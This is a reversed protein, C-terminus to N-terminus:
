PSALLSFLCMCTHTLFSALTRSSTLPFRSPLIFVHKHTLFSALTRSSTLPFRSPLIFVYMHTDSIIGTNQQLNPPLSFLCMCTHTLFSALTRSSTLPFRSPLVFVYMHTLFSALTRSSTLPFRSPLIFVYMHTDSIIGTNQQLNHSALLSFLCMCTHTLFSTLTRSEIDSQSVSPWAFLNSFSFFLSRHLLIKFSGFISIPLVHLDLLCLICSIPLISSHCGRCPLLPLPHCFFSITPSKTWVFPIVHDLSICPTYFHLAVDQLPHAFGPMSIERLQQDQYLLRALLSDQSMRTDSVMTSCSRTPQEM